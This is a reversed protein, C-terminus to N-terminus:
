DARLFNLYLDLGCKHSKEPHFQTGCINGKQVVSPFEYGYFTTASIDREDHCRLHYSHTFYFLQNEPVNKLLISDKKRALSNWGVHPVPLAKAQDEFRFVVTEADLWGLGAAGGEDSSHSFLQMGLCVGMVPTKKELVMENLVPILGSAQLNEMGATFAGVGPLILRDAKKIEDPDKSVVANFGFRQLKYQISRLNGMDYDVIVVM